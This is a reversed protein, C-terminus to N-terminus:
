CETYDENWKYNFQFAVTGTINSAAFIATNEIAKGESDVVGSDSGLIYWEIDAGDYEGLKLKGISADESDPNFESQLEDQSAYASLSPKSAADDNADAHVSISDVASLSLGMLMSATLLLAMGRKMNAIFM